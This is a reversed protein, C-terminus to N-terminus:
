NHQNITQTSITVEGNSDLVPSWTPSSCSLNRDSIRTLHRGYLDMTYIQKRGTRTSTFALKLGDPSWCPDMNQGPGTTLKVHKDGRPDTVYIQFGDLDQRVYAM